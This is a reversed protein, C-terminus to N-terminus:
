DEILPLKVVVATGSPSSSVECAGGLANAHEDLAQLGIGKGPIARDFGSGNDEIRLEIM